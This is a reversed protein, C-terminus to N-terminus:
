VPPAHPTSDLHEGNRHKETTDVKPSARPSHPIAVEDLGQEWEYIM